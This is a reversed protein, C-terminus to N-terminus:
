VKADPAVLANRMAGRIISVTRRHVRHSVSGGQEDAEIEGGSRKRLRHGRAAVDAFLKAADQLAWGRFEICGNLGREVEDYCM